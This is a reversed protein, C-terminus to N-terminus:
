EVNQIQERVKELEGKVNLVLQIIKIDGTKSGITNIERYLEQVLFELQRGVPKDLDLTDEFQQIHSKLRLLEETIDSKDVFIAIEQYIRAEDFVEKNIGLADLKNKLKEKYEALVQPTRKEIDIVLEKIDKIRTRFEAEIKRGEVIRTSILEEVAKSLPEKLWEWLKDKQDIIFNKSIIGNIGIIHSLKLDDKLGLSKGVKRFAELYTKALEEDIQFKDFYAEINKSTIPIYLKGRAVKTKIYEKIKNELFGMFYPSSIKIDCFKHNVSQIEVTFYENSGRGYGTMSKLM